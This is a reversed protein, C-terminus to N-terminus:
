RSTTPRFSRFILRLAGSTPRSGIISRITTASPAILSFVWSCALRKPPSRRPKSELAVFFATPSNQITGTSVLLDSVLRDYRLNEAFRSRLWTQVGARGFQVEPSSAEPLLWNSWTNALHTSSSPSALLRAVLDKRKTPSPNSIFDLVERGTPVTGALDLTARRLFSADDCRGAPQWGLETLKQNLLEDVRAAMKQARETKSSENEEAQLAHFSSLLLLTQLSFCILGRLSKM